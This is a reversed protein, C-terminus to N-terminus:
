SMWAGSKFPPAPWSARVTSTKRDQTGEPRKSSMPPVASDSPPGRASPLIYFGRGAFTPLRMLARTDWSNTPLRSSEITCRTLSTFVTQTSGTKKDGFVGYNQPLTKNSHQYSHWYNGSILPCNNERGRQTTRSEM